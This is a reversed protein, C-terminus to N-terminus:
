KGKQERHEHDYYHSRSPRPGVLKMDVNPMYIEPQPQYTASREANMCAQKLEYKRMGARFYSNVQDSEVMNMFHTAPPKRSRAEVENLDLKERLLDAGRPGLSM